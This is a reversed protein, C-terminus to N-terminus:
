FSQEEAVAFGLISTYPLKRVPYREAHARLSIGALRMLFRSVQEGIWVFANHAGDCFWWCIAAILGHVGVDLELVRIDWGLVGVELPVLRLTPVSVLIFAAHGHAHAKGIKVSQTHSRDDPPSDHTDRIERRM